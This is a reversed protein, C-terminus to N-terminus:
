RDREGRIIHPTGESVIQRMFSQFLIIAHEVYIVLKLFDTLTYHGTIPKIHEFSLDDRDRGVSVFLAKFYKSTWFLMACNSMISIKTLIELCDM